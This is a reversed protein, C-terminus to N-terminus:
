AMRNWGYHEIIAARLRSGQLQQLSATDKSCLPQMGPKRGKITESVYLPYDYFLSRLLKISLNGKRVLKLGIETAELIAYSGNSCKGSENDTLMAVKHKECFKAAAYTATIEPASTENLSTVAPFEIGMRKAISILNALVDRGAPDYNQLIYGTHQDGSIVSGPLEMLKVATVNAPFRIFILAGAISTLLGPIRFLNHLSPHIRSLDAAPLLSDFDVTLAYPRLADRGKIDAVSQRFSSDSSNGWLGWVSGNDVALPKGDLMVAAGKQIDRANHLDGILRKQGIRFRSGYDRVRGLGWVQTELTEATINKLVFYITFLFLRLCYLFDRM